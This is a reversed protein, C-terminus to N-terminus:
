KKRACKIRSKRQIWADKLTECISRHYEERDPWHQRLIRQLQVQRALRPEPSNRQWEDEGGTWEDYLACIADNLQNDLIHVPDREGLVTTTYFGHLQILPVLLSLNGM